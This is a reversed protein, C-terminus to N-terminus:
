SIWIRLLTSHRVYFNNTNENKYSLLINDWITNESTYKNVASHAVLNEIFKFDKDINKQSNKFRDLNKHDLVNIWAEM